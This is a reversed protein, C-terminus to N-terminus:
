CVYCDIISKEQSLFIVRTIPVMTWWLRAETEWERASNEHEDDDRERETISSSSELHLLRHRMLWGLLAFSLLRGGIYMTLIVVAVVVAVDDLFQGKPTHFLLGSLFKYLFSFLCLEYEKLM